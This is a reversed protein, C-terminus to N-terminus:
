KEDLEKIALNIRKLEAEHITKQVVLTDRYQKKTELNM